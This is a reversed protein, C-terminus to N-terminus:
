ELLEIGLDVTLRDGEPGAVRVIRHSTGDSLRVDFSHSSAMVVPPSSVDGATFGDALRSVELTGTVRVRGDDGLTMRLHSRFGIEQYSVAAGAEASEADETAQRIPIPVRTGSTVSSPGDVTSVLEIASPVARDFAEGNVTFTLRASAAQEAAFLTAGFGMLVPVIVAVLIADRRM